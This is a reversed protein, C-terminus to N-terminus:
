QTACSRPSRTTDPITSIPLSLKFTQKVSDTILTKVEAASLVNTTITPQQGSATIALVLLVPLQGTIHAKFISM